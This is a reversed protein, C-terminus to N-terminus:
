RKEFEFRKSGAAKLQVEKLKNPYVPCRAFCMNEMGSHRKTGSLHPTPAEQTDGQDRWFIRALTPELITLIIGPGGIVELLTALDHVFPHSDFVKVRNNGAKQFHVCSLTIKCAVMEQAVDFM